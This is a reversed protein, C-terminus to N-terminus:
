KEDVKKRDHTKYYNEKTVQRSRAIALSDKPVEETITSGAAIYSGERVTVPSVLNTNCGVFVDDEVVTIHKEKGDYNVFVVGCGLNVNKGVYADGVYTLHSAKSGDGFRANKMEVFDGIKANKGIKCDPRIYAYPGIKSYEGVSSGVLISTQITVGDAIKCDTIKSRELITCGSGIQTEGELICGPYIVTDRGITVEKNIYTADPDIITVGNEMHHENIRRRLIKEVQALEVRSNVAKINEVDTIFTGTKLGDKNMIEIVDTLYYEQQANDNGLKDLSKILDGSNFCYMGSNIENIKLEEDTGDKQEVIRSLNGNNDKVIRGYGTPNQMMATLVTASNGGSEHNEMMKSLTNGDILPADGVLVLVNTDDNPLFEKSVMLAHGTGLQQDQSIYNIESGMAEMIMEKKHGVIAYVQSVGAETCGDVVHALMYKGAAKHLVKPIESKMRTGKGAALILAITNSM